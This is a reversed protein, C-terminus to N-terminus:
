IMMISSARRGSSSMMGSAIIYPIVIVRGAAHPILCRPVQQMCTPYPMYHSSSEVAANDRGGGEDTFSPLIRGDYPPQISICQEHCRTDDIFLGPLAAAASSIHQQNSRGRFERSSTLAYTYYSPPADCVVDHISWRGQYHHVEVRIM